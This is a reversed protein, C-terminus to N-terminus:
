THLLTMMSVNDESDVPSYYDHNGGIVYLHEVYQSLENFKDQVRAVTYLNFTSRSDFLDGCHIITYGPNARVYEIVEDLGKLQYKLWTLSNNKVGFHTDGLIITKM